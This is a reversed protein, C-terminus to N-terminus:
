FPLELGAISHRRVYVAGTELETIYLDRRDAGGFAVNTPQRGGAPLLDLLEGQASIVDVTGLGYNTVYLNGEVDLAMGDGGIGGQRIPCFHEGAGLSGDERVEYRLMEHALENVVYLRRGRPAPTGGATLALGNPFALGEAVVHAEGQPTCHWVKGVRNDAKSGVPDTFYFNGRADFCLDNPGAFGQGEGETALTRLNGEGDAVLIAKLGAEAIYLLGEPGFALGNPHGGTNAFVDTQGDPTIKLINGNGMCVVFLNGADDFAPGEPAPTNSVFLRPAESCIGM